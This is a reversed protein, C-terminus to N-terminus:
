SCLSSYENLFEVRHLSWLIRLVFATSKSILEQNHYRKRGVSKYVLRMGVNDTEHKM